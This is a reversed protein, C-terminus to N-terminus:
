STITTIPPLSRSAPATGSCSPTSCAIVEEFREGGRAGAIVISRDPLTWTVTARIRPHGAFSGYRDWVPAELAYALEDRGTWREVGVLQDGEVRSLVIRGTRGGEGARGSFPVLAITVGRREFEEWM